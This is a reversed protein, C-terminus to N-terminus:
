AGKQTHELPTDNNLNLLKQLESAKFPKSLVGAVGLRIAEMQHAISDSESSIWIVKSRPSVKHLLETVQIGNKHPMVLDLTIWDPKLQDALLLAENGNSAHGVCTFGYETLLDSLTERIFQIDDVILVNKSM